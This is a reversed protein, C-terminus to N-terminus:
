EWSRVYLDPGALLAEILKQIDQGEEEFIGALLASLSEVHEGQATGVAYAVINKTFCHAAVSRSSLDTMFDISGSYTQTQSKVAVSVSSDIPRDGKATRYRGLADYKGFLFGYPM